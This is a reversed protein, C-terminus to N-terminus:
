SSVLDTETMGLVEGTAPRQVFAVLRDCKSEVDVPLTVEITKSAGSDLRTSKLLRVVNVHQLTRGANEGKPVDSEAFSQLVAINIRDDAKAGEASYEVSVTGSTSLDAQLSLDVPARKQMSKSVAQVADRRRSGVLSTTGNIVLQPTYVSDKLLKSYARQRESYEKASFPDTWGLRNWYDVHYSLVAIPLASKRAVRDIDRLLADAPPCSSCGESTFLECLAFGQNQATPKSSDGATEEQANLAHSVGLLAGSTLAAGSVSLFGRRTTKM